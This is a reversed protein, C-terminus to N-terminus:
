RSLGWMMGGFCMALVGFLGLAFGAARLWAGKHKDTELAIGSLIGAAGAIGILFGWGGGNGKAPEDGALDNGIRDGEKSNDQGKESPSQDHNTAILM